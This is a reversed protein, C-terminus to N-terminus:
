QSKRDGHPPPPTWFLQFELGDEPMGDRYTTFLADVSKLDDPFKKFYESAMDPTVTIYLSSRALLVVKKM